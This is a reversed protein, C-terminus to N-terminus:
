RDLITVLTPARLRISAILSARSLPHIQAARGARPMTATIEFGESDHQGACVAGGNNGAQRRLRALFEGRDSVGVNAVIRLRIMGDSETITIACKRLGDHRLLETLCDRLMIALGAEAAGPSPAFQATVHADVHLASLVFEASALEATLSMEQYGSAVSRVDILTQRSTLLAETLEAAALEPEHRLTLRAQECRDSIAAISKDFLPRLDQAFRLREQSVALRALESRDERTERVLAGLWTMGFVVLSTLLTAVTVYAATEIQNGLATWAVDSAATIAALCPLSAWPPLSLLCSGGLFGPVGLWGQGIFAFPAFTIVAQAALTLWRYRAERSVTSFLSRAAQLGLLVAILAAATITKWLPPHASQVYTVGILAYCVFIVATIALVAGPAIDDAKPQQRVGLLRYSKPV